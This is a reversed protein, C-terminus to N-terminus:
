DIEEKDESDNYKQDEKEGQNIKDTDIDEKNRDVMKCPKVKIAAVKKMDGMLYIWVSRGKQCQVETPSCQSNRYKNQYWVKDGEPGQHQYAMVRAKQCM